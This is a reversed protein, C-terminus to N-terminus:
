VESRSEGRRRFSEQEKSMIKMIRSVQSIITPTIMLSSKKIKRLNKVVTLQILSGAQIQILYSKVKLSIQTQTTM